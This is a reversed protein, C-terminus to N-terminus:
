RPILHVKQSIEKDKTLPVHTENTHVHKIMAKSSNIKSLQNSSIKMQYPKKNM